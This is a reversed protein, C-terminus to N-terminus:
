YPLGDPVSFEVPLMSIWRGDKWDFPESYSFVVGDIWVGVRVVGVLGCEEDVEVSMSVVEGRELAMMAEAVVVLEKLKNLM